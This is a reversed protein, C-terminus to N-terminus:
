GGAERGKTDAYWWGCLRRLRRTWPILGMLLIVPLVKPWRHIKRASTVVSPSELIVFAERRGAWRRLRQSFAVEEGAFDRAGFGGVADFAARTAFVYCGAAWRRNRSLTNWTWLLARPMLGVRRDFAVVAGGGVAGNKMADVSARLLEASPHTDADVFVLMAGTASAAGANRARAIQNIPEHVVADAGHSRAVEATGDTSRNDVVIVEGPVPLPALAARVADLTGPLATAENFAPIVVSLEPRSADRSRMVVLKASRFWGPRLRRRPHARVGYRM